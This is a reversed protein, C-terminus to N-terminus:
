GWVVWAEVEGPLRYSGQGEAEWVLWEKAGSIGSKFPRLGITLSLLFHPSPARYSSLGRDARNIGRLGWPLDPDPTWIYSSLSTRPKQGM